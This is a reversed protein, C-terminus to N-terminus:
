WDGRDEGVEYLIAAAIIALVVWISIELEIFLYKSVILDLINEVSFVAVVAAIFMLIRRKM